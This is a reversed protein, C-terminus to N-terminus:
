LDNKGSDIQKQLTKTTEADCFYYFLRPIFHNGKGLYDDFTTVSFTNEVLVGTGDELVVLWQEIICEDKPTREAFTSISGTIPLLKYYQNSVSGCEPVGYKEALISSADEWYKLMTEAKLYESFIGRDSYDPMKYLARILKDQEDFYYTISSNAISAITGNVVLMDGGGSIAFGAEEEAKTVEDRTMGFEVGSHISFGEDAFASIGMLMAIMLMLCIIKKM